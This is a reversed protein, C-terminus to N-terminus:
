LWVFRIFWGGSSPIVFFLSFVQRLQRIEWIFKIWVFRIFRSEESVHVVVFCSSFREFQTMEWRFRRWVMQSGQSALFLTVFILGFFTPCQKMRWLFSRYIVQSCQYFTMVEGEVILWFILCLRRRPWLFLRNWFCYWFFEWGHIKSLLWKTLYRQKISHNPFKMALLFVTSTWPCRNSYSLHKLSIWIVFCIFRFFDIIVRKGNIM